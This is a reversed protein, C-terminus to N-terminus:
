PPSIRVWVPKEEELKAGSSSQIESLKDPLIPLLLRGEQVDNILRDILRFLIEESFLLHGDERLKSIVESEPRKSKRSLESISVVRADYPLGQTGVCIMVIGYPIEKDIDAFVNNVFKLAQQNETTVAVIIKLISGTISFPLRARIAANHALSELRKLSELEKTIVTHIARLRQVGDQRTLREAEADFIRNLSAAAEALIRAQHCIDKLYVQFSEIGEM